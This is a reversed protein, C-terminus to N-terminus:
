RVPEALFAAMRELAEKLDEQSLAYSLRIHEPANFVSGPVAAVHHRELLEACFQGVSRGHLHAAVSPFTYFAGGPTLLELGLARLGPVFFNRREQFAALMSAVEPPEEALVAQYAKQSIYNPCGTTQSILRGLAKAVPEPALAFGIRYGTMAFNKSAGDVLVTRERMREGLSTFSGSQTDSFVLRRYIEDCVVFLDRAEALAALREMEGQTWVYGSPNSPSNLMVGRTKPGIAGEIARFDPRLNAQCPVWIPKGGAVQIQAEYSNWAPTFLLVEDGPELLVDLTAALMHKCSHGVVVHNPDVPFGRTAEVHRAITERLEWLGAAPTYRVEGSTIASRAAEQAARPADFDPEGVAMSIVPKGQAALEKARAALQLTASGPLAQARRNEKMPLMKPATPQSRVCPEPAICRILRM